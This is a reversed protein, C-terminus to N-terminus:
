KRILIYFRPLNFSSVEPFCVEWDGYAVIIVNYSAFFGRFERFNQYAIM